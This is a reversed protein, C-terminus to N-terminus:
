EGDGDGDEGDVGSEERADLVDGWAGDQAGHAAEGVGGFGAAGASRGWASRAWASVSAVRVAIGAVPAAVRGVAAAIGAVAWGRHRRGGVRSAASRLSHM